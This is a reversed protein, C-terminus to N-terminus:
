GPSKAILLATSFTALAFPTVIASTAIEHDQLEGHTSAGIKPVLDFSRSSSNILPIFSFNLVSSVFSISSAYM